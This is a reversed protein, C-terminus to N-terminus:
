DPAAASRRRRNRRAPDRPFLPSGPRATTSKALFRRTAASGSRACPPAPGHPIPAPPSTILDSALEKDEIQFVRIRHWPWPKAHGDDLRYMSNAHGRLATAM